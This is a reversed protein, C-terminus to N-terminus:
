RWFLWFFSLTGSLAFARMDMIPGSIHACQFDVFFRMLCEDSYYDHQVEQVWHSNNLRLVHSITRAIFKAQGDIPISQVPPSVVATPTLQGLSNFLTDFIMSRVVTENYVIYNSYGPYWVPLKWVAKPLVSEKVLVNIFNLLFQTTLVFASYVYDSFLQVRHQDDSFIKDLSTFAMLLPNFTTSMLCSRTHDPFMGNEILCTWLEISFCRLWHCPLVVQVSHEDEVPEPSAARRVPSSSCVIPDKRSGSQARPSQLLDSDGSSNLHARCCGLQRCVSIQARNLDGILPGNVLLENLAELVFEITKIVNECRRYKPLELKAQELVPDLLSKAQPIQDPRWQRPDCDFGIYRMITPRLDKVSTSRDPKVPVLINCINLSSSM